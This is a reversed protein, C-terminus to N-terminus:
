REAGPPKREIVKLSVGKFGISQLDAFTERVKKYPLRGDTLLLLNREEDEEHLRRLREALTNSKVRERDVLVIGNYAMAVEIPNMDKPKPDPMLIEPLEVHEGENLAPAIVMFIILLVLVVDVLPTVNMDPEPSYKGVRTQATFAM